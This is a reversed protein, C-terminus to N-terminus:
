AYGSEAGYRVELSSLCSLLLSPVHLMPLRTGRRARNVPTRPLPIRPLGSEPDHISGGRLAVLIVALTWWAAHRLERCRTTTSPSIYASSHESGPSIHTSHATRTPPPWLKPWPMLTPVSERRAKHTDYQSKGNQKRCAFGPPAGCETCQVSFAGRMQQEEGSLKNYAGM